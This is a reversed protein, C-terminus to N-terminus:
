RKAPQTGLFTCNGVSAPCHYWGGREESRHSPSRAALPLDQRSITVLSPTNPVPGSSLHGLQCDYDPHLYWHLTTGREGGEEKM